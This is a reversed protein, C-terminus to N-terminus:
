RRTGAVASLSQILQVLEVQRSIRNKAFIQRLHWGVTGKSRGTALAIDGLTNGEALMVAM